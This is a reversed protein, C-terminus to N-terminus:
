QCPNYDSGLIIRIDAPQGADPRRIVNAPKVRLLRALLEVEQPKDNFVLIQTRQYDARDAPGGDEISLGYWSLQDAAIAALQPRATGNQVQIRVAERAAQAEEAAPPAYLSAVVQQVKEPDPILVSWGEPTRWNIVQDRGIYRSRINQPKLDLALPALALVDGLKLDTAVAGKLASWLAPIKLITDPSKFQHWVAKLFQHQRHAREFDSDGRRTRVYRLAAAGDLHHLGPELIIETETVPTSAMFQLNTRCPVIMDVGGLEDVARAFGEYGLRVWHDVPVGLSEEITRILLGPGGGEPYKTRAGIRHATNIRNWGYTPIYVWLDRPISLLSVQKTQRNIVAVILTDTNMDLAYDRDGGILLIHILDQTLVGTPVPTPSEALPM